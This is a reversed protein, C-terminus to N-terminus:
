GCSNSMDLGVKHQPEEQIIIWEYKAPCYKALVLKHSPVALHNAVAHRLSVPTAGSSTNWVLETGPLYTRSGPIHLKIELLM